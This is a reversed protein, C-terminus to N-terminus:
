ISQHATQAPKRQVAIFKGGANHGLPQLSPARFTVCKVLELCVGPTYLFLAGPLGPSQVQYPPGGVNAPGPHTVQNM